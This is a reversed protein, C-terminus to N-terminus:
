RIMNLIFITEVQAIILVTMTISALYVEKMYPLIAIILLMLM